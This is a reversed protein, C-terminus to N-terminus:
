AKLHITVLVRSGAGEAFRAHLRLWGGFHRVRALAVGNKRSPLALTSRASPDVAVISTSAPAADTNFPSPKVLLETATPSTTVM